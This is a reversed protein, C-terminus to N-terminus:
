QAFTLTSFIITKCRYSEFAAALFQVPDELHELVEFAFLADATFRPGPEFTKAFLNRCHEDTTHCDFGRDRMLRTLLGYGGALDLFKGNEISLLELIVELWASSVINRRVLGTDANGIPELYAEDLWHPKETKLLGCDPCYHYTVRHKKLVIASVVPEMPVCSIPCVVEATM